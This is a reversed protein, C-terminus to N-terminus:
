HSRTKLGLSQRLAGWRPHEAALFHGFEDGKLFVPGLGRVYLFEKYDASQVVKELAETLRQRVEDPLGAPGVVGRWTGGLYEKGIAEKVTPIVEFGHIRDKAMVALPRAKRSLMLSKGENLSVPCIDANGALMDMCMGDLSPDALAELKDPSIGNAKLLGALAIHYAGGVTMGGVAYRRPAQARIAALAEKLSNWTSGSPIWFATPSFEVLGIATYREYTYDVSEDWYSGIFEPTVLGLTYGDPVAYAVDTNAFVSNAGMRNQVTVPQGLEKGLGYAIEKAVLDSNRGPAWGVILAIGREPWAALVGNAACLLSIVITSRIAWQM